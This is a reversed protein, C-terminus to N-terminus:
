FHFPIARLIALIAIFWKLKQMIWIPKQIGLRMFLMMYIGHIAHNALFFKKVQFHDDDWVYKGERMRCVFPSLKASKFGNTINKQADEVSEFGAVVNTKSAGVVISFANLLAGFAYIQAETKNSADKLTIM